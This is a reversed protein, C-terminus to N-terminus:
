TVVTMRKRAGPMVYMRMGSVTHPRQSVAMRLTSNTGTSPEAASSSRSSRTNPVWNKM